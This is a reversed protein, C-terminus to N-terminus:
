CDREWDVLDVLNHMPYRVQPNYANPAGDADVDLKGTWFFASEGEIQRIPTGGISKVVNANCNANQTCCEVASSGAASVNCNLGLHKM